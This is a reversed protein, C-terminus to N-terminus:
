VSSLIKVLQVCQEPTSSADLLTRKDVQISPDDGEEEDEDCDDDFDDKVSM